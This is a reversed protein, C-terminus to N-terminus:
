ASRVGAAETRPRLRRGQGVSGRHPPAPQVQRHPRLPQRLRDQDPRLQHRRRHRRHHRGRDRRLPPQHRGHLRERQAMEVAELTETLTGIQNVKVLISNRAARPSARRGPARHQHRLLRRRRDPGQEGLAKTIAAYGDWDDQDLPDEISIIPYKDVWGAFLDIMEQSSFLKDPNSKWFKYGKKGGEDFLESSACDLAIAFDKDRGATYGAKDIADLIFTIAEENDLNPAFGGKTASPPTTAPRRSSPRSPTSSRPSWASAKPSARPASPCSWSNRSTSRTTPTSAATSSTPWRCPCSAPTPAASTATSRCATRRRRRGQRRGPQRRPDRQRRAQGQEPTGDADIM